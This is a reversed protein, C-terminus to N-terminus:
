FLNFVLRKNRIFFNRIKMYIFFLIYLEKVFISFGM